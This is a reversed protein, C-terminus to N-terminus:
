KALVQPGPLLTVAGSEVEANRRGVEAAWTEEVEHDADLNAILREM